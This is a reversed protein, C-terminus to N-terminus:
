GRKRITERIRSPSYEKKGRYRFKFPAADHVSGKKFALRKAACRLAVGASKDGM